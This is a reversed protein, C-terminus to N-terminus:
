SPSDWSHLFQLTDSPPGVGCQTSLTVVLEQLWTELARVSDDPVPRAHWRWVTTVRIEGGTELQQITGTGSAKAFRVEAFRPGPPVAGTQVTQMRTAGFNRPNAAAVVASDVDPTKQLVFSMCGPVVPQPFTTSGSTTWAVPACAAATLTAIAAVLYVRM